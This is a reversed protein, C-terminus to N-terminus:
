LLLFLLFTLWAVNAQIRSYCGAGFADMMHLIVRIPMVYCSISFPDSVLGNNTTEQKDENAISNESAIACIKKCMVAHWRFDCWPEDVTFHYSNSHTCNWFHVVALVLTMSPEMILISYWLWVRSIIVMFILTRALSITTPTSDQCQLWVGFQGWDCVWNFVWYETPCYLPSCDEGNHTDMIIATWSKRLELAKLSLCIKLALLLSSFEYAVGQKVRAEETWDSCCLPFHWRLTEPHFGCPIYNNVVRHASCV